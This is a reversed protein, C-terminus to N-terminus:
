LNSSVKPAGPTSPNSLTVPGPYTASSCGTTVLKIAFNTYSGAGLGTIVIQSSGNAAIVVASQPTGNFSYTVSYNALATISGNLTITGQTGGCTTPNSSATSTITPLPYVVVTIAASSSSTCNNVTQTVTYSGAMASTANTRNIPSGGRGVSDPFTWFFTAGTTGSATLTITGGACVPSNSSATPAAPPTPNSLVVPGTFVANSCGAIGVTINSYSGAALGSITIQGGASSTLTTPGVVTSNLTYSVSYSLSSGLGSLTIFGQSGGCTTPNTGVASTIVPAPNIVVTTCAQPSVCSGLATQTACYSGAM